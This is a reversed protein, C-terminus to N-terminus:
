LYIVTPNDELHEDLLDEVEDIDGDFGDLISLPRFQSLTLTEEPKGNAKVYEICRKVIVQRDANLDYSVDFNYRKLLYESFIRESYIGGKDQIIERENNMLHKYKRLAIEKTCNYGDQFNRFVGKPFMLHKDIYEFTAQVIYEVTIPANSRPTFSFRKEGYKLGNMRVTFEISWNDLITRISTHIYVQARNEFRTEDDLKEQTFLDYHARHAFEDKFQSRFEQGLQYFLINRFSTSRNYKSRESAGSWHIQRQEQEPTLHDFKNWLQSSTRWNHLNNFTLPIM